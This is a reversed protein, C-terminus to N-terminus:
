QNAAQYVASIKFCVPGGCVDFSGRCIIKYYYLAFCVINIIYIESYQIQIFHTLIIKSNLSQLSASNLYVKHFCYFLYQMVMIVMWQNQLSSVLSSYLVDSFTTLIDPSSNKNIQVYCTPLANTGTNDCNCVCMAVEM